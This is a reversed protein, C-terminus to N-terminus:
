SSHQLCIHVLNRNEDHILQLSCHVLNRREDHITQLSNHLLMNQKNTPKQNHNLQEQMMVLNDALDLLTPKRTIM